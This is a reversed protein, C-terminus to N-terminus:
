RHSPDHTVKCEGVPCHCHKPWCWAKCDSDEQIEHCCDKDEPDPIYHRKCACRHAPEKADRECIWGPPPEKHDQQGPYAPAQPLPPPEQAAHVAAVTAWLAFATAAVWLLGLWRWGYHGRLLVPRQSRIRSVNM